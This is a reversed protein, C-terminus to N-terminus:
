SEELAYAVIQEVTLDKGAAREIEFSTDDVGARAIELNRDYEPKDAPDLIIGLRDLQGEAAGFLRAARTFQGRAGAVSALGVICFAVIAESGFEQAIKLSEIFLEKAEQLNHKHIAVYGKNHLEVGVMRRDGLERNLALSQNYLEEAEDYNGELRTVEALMHLPLVQSQKNGLEQGIAKSEECLARVRSYDGDRLAVRSLGILATAIGEKDELERSISLSEESLLRSKEQDGQRFAQVGEEYLAKARKATQEGHHLDDM